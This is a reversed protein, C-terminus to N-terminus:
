DGELEGSCGICGTRKYSVFCRRKWGSLINAGIFGQQQEFYDLLVSKELQFHNIFTLQFTGRHPKLMPKKMCDLKDDVQNQSQTNNNQTADITSVEMLKPPFILKEGTELNSEVYVYEPLSELAKVPNWCGLQRMPFHEGFDEQYLRFVKTVPIGTEARSVLDTLWQGVRTRMISKSDAGEEM